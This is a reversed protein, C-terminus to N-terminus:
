KERVNLVKSTHWGDFEAEEGVKIYLFSTSKKEGMDMYRHQPNVEKIKEVEWIIRGGYLLPDALTIRYHSNETEIIM